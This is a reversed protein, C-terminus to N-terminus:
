IELQLKVTYFSDAKNQELVYHRDFLLDLRRRINTLGLGGGDGGATKNESATNRCTFTLRNPEVVFSIAIFSGDSHAVNHKVANEVFPIFLLPAMEVKDVEGVTALTYAFRERRTKELELYHTLFRIDDRLRVKEHLSGNLQYQLLENLNILIDAATHPDDEILIHANNLMNFLFHPNIQNKLYNLEAAYTAAKLTALRRKDTLWQKFSLLGAVGGIFLLMALVSSTISLLVAMASPDQHIVGIDYFNAQLVIMVGGMIGTFVLVAVVYSGIRNKAMYAPFLVYMNFYVLVNLFILYGLWGYVRNSSLNVRDPADFFNGISIILLMLQLLAHRYLRYKDEMLFSSLRNKAVSTPISM